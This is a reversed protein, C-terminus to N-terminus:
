EYLIKLIRAMLDGAMKEGSEEGKAACVVYLQIQHILSTPAVFAVVGRDAFAGVAVERFAQTSAGRKELEIMAAATVHRLVPTLARAETKLSFNYPRPPIKSDAPGIRPPTKPNDPGDKLHDRVALALRATEKEEDGVAIVMVAVLEPDPLPSLLVQIAVHENWGHANGDTTAEAFLFKENVGMVEVAKRAGETRSM